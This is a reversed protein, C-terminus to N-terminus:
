EYCCRKHIRVEKVRELKDDPIFILHWQEKNKERRTIKYALITDSFFYSDPDGMEKIVDQRLSNVYKKQKVLDVAMAGKKEESLTTFKKADFSLIGWKKEAQKVTLFKENAISYSYAIVFISMTTILIFFALTIKKM